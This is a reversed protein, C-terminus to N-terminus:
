SNKCQAFLRMVDREIQQAEADLIPKRPNFVVLWRAPLDSLHLRVAERMRRKMRNRKVAKGLARAVTFGVRPGEEGAEPLCFATFCRSPFRFGKVSVRRFEGSKLIRRTKPFPLAARAPM